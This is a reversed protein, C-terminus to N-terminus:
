LFRVSFYSKLFSFLIYGMLSLSSLDILFIQNEESINWGIEELSNLEIVEEIEDDMVSDFDGELSVDDLDLLLEIVFNIYSDSWDSDEIYECVDQEEGDLATCNFATARSILVVALLFIFLTKAKM